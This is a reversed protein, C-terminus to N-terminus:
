PSPFSIFTGNLFFAVWRSETEDEATERLLDLFNGKGSKDVNSLFEEQGALPRNPRPDDKLHGSVLRWIIKLSMENITNKLIGDKLVKCTMSILAMPTNPFLSQLDMPSDGATDAMDTDM